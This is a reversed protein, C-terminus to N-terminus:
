RSDRMTMEHVKDANADLLHVEYDRSSAPDSSTVQRGEVVVLLLMGAAGADISQSRTAEASGKVRIEMSTVGKPAVATFFRDTGLQAFSPRWPQGNIRGDADPVPDCGQAGGAPTTIQTCFTGTGSEGLASADIRSVTYSAGSPARGHVLEVSPPVVGSPDADDADQVVAWATGAVAGFAAALGAALFRRRGTM